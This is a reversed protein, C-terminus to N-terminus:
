TRPPLPIECTEEHCFGEPALSAAYEPTERWAMELAALFAEVAQAGSVGYRGHIRVFPVGTIGLRRAEEEDAEVAARHSGTVLAEDLAIPDLGMEQGIAVLNERVFISRREGFHARYIHQWAEHQLGQASAFALFEHAMGTNAVINEGVHYPELGEQRALAEIRQTSQALQAPSMGYKQALLEPVPKPTTSARPDLEFSRHVLEVHERAHFAELAKELRRQGLGCWPCVIDSWIEVRM